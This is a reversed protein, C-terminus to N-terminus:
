VDANPLSLAGLLEKTYFIFEKEDEDSNPERGLIGGIAITVDLGPLPPMEDDTLCHWAPGRRGGDM